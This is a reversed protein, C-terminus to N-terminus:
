APSNSIAERLQVSHGNEHEDKSGILEELVLAPKLKCCLLAGM